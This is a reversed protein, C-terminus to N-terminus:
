VFVFEEEEGLEMGEGEMVGHVYAAGVFKYMNRRRRGAEGGEQNVGEREGQITGERTDGEEDVEQGTAGVRNGERERERDEEGGEPESEVRRVVYGTQGGKLLVVLDGQEMGDPGTGIYGKSTRFMRRGLQRDEVWKAVTSVPKDGEHQAHEQYWERVWAHSFSDGDHTKLLKYWPIYYKKFFASPVPEPAAPSLPSLGHLLTRFFARHYTEHPPLPYPSGGIPFPSASSSSPLNSSKPPNSPPSEDNNQPANTPPHNGSCEGNTKSSVNGDTASSDAANNVTANRDPLTEISKSGGPQNESPNPQEPPPLSDRKAEPSHSSAPKDGAGPLIANGETDYTVHQELLKVIEQDINKEWDEKKAKAPSPDGPKGGEVAVLATAQGGSDSGAPLGKLTKNRATLYELHRKLMASPIFRADSEAFMATEFWTMVSTMSMGASDLMKSVRTITDLVVGNLSIEDDDTVKIIKETEPIQGNVKLVPKSDLSAHYIWEDRSTFTGLGRKHNNTAALNPVLSLWKGAPDTKVPGVLHLIDLTGHMIIHNVTVNLYLLYPSITYDLLSTVIERDRDDTILGLLGYVRDLPETSQFNATAHLLELLGTHTGQEVNKRLKELRRVNGLFTKDHAVKNSKWIKFSDLGGLYQIVEASDAFLGWPAIHAGDFVAANKSVAIEQCIWIREFWPQTFLKTIGDRSNWPVHLEHEGYTMHDLTDFSVKGNHVLDRFEQVYLYMERLMAMSKFGQDIKKLDEDSAGRGAPLWVFTMKAAKYIDRMMKVQEEREAFNGQNICVADIWLTPIGKAFSNRSFFLRVLNKLADYVNETVALSKGNCRIRHTKAPTGWTYSVASFMGSMNSLKDCILVWNLDRPTDEETPPLLMLVRIYGEPLQPGYEFDPLSDIPLSSNELGPNYMPDIFPLMSPRGDSDAHRSEQVDEMDDIHGGPQEPPANVEPLAERLDDM